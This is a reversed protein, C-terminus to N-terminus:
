RSGTKVESFSRELRRLDSYSVSSHLVYGYSRGLHLVVLVQLLDPIARADNAVRELQRVHGNVLWLIPELVQVWSVVDQDRLDAALHNAAEAKAALM